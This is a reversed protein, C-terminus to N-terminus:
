PWPSWSKVASWSWFIGDLNSTNGSSPWQIPLGCFVARHYWVTRSQTFSHVLLGGAGAGAGSACGAGLGYNAQRARLKGSRSACMTKWTASPTSPLRGLAPAGTVQDLKKRLEEDRFTLMGRDTHNV